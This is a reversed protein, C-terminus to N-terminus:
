DERSKRGGNRQWWGLTFLLIGAGALVPVPWWLLGTQPLGTLPTDEDPIDVEPVDPEGPTGPTNPPADGEPVPEDPIDVDPVDPDKPDNPEGPQHPRNPGPEDPDDRHYTNTIAIQLDNGTYTVSYGPPVSGEIVTWHYAPDLDSWTHRWHNEASLAVREVEQGDRRLVAEVSAPRRDRSGNDNWVKIVMLETQPPRPTSDPKTNADVDYVWGDEWGPLSVLFPAVRYTAEGVKADEGVLLYLGTPLGEFFALGASDTRATQRPQHAQAYAALTSAAANWGDADLGKLDVGCDTFDGTLSFVVDESMDGVRYLRFVVGSLPLSQNDEGRVLHSLTLSCTRATEVPGALAAQAPGALAALLALLIAAARFHKKM